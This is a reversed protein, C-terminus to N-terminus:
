VDFLGQFNGAAPIFPNTIFNAQLVLNSQMVFTLKALGSVVDGTWGDFVYASSAPKATVTFSSGVALLQGNQNPSVTGSGPTLSVISADPVWSTPLSGRAM